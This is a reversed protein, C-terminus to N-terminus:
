GSNNSAAVSASQQQEALLPAQEAIVATGLAPATVYQVPDPLVEQGGLHRRLALFTMVALMASIFGFFGATELLGILFAAIIPGFCNGLGFGLLLTTAAPLIQALDLRDNALAVSLPYITAICGFVTAAGAIHAVGPAFPLAVLLAAVVTGLVGIAIVTPLRGLRDSCWGVPAQSVMAALVACAMFQSVELPTMGIRLAYVPGMMMFAGSCVGATIVGVVAFPALRYLDGLRMAAGATPAPADTRGLALPVLSLVILMAAVSFPFYGDIPVWGILYQGGASALYFILNYEALLRGRNSRNARAAIWSEIVSLMAASTFGLGLRLLAWALLSDLMPFALAFCCTLGAMGAFSRIHGVAQIIRGAHLSGLVFGFSHLSLALGISLAPEGSLNLRIAVLAGLFSNGASLLPMAVFLAAM